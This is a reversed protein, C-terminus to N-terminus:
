VSATEKKYKNAFYLRVDDTSMTGQEKISQRSKELKIQKFIGELIEIEDQIDDSIANLRNYVNAKAISMFRVEKRSTKRLKM